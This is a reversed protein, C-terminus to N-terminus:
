GELSNDYYDYDYDKNLFNCLKKFNRSLVYFCHFKTIFYLLLLIKHYFMFVTFNTIFMSATFNQSLFCFCNFKSLIYFCHFKHYVYFCHFKTIFCLLLSIHHPLEKSVAVLFQLFITYFTEASKSTFLLNGLHDVVINYKPGITRTRTRNHIIEFYIISQNM